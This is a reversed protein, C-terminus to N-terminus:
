RWYYWKAGRSFYFQKNGLRRGFIWRIIEAETDSVIPGYIAVENAKMRATDVAVPSWQSMATAVIGISACVRMSLARQQEATLQLKNM